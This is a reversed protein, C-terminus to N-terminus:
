SIAVQNYLKTIEPRPECPNTHMIENVRMEQKREAIGCSLEHGFGAGKSISVYCESIRFHHLPHEGQYADQLTYVRHSDKQCPRKNFDLLHSFAKTQLCTVILYRSILSQWKVISPM